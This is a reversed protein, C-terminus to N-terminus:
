HLMSLKLDCFLVFNQSGTDKDVSYMTQQNNAKTNSMVLVFWFMMTSKQVMLQFEVTERITM